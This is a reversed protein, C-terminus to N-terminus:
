LQRVLISKYAQLDGREGAVKLLLSGVQPASRTCPHSAEPYTAQTESGRHTCYHSPRARQRYLEHRRRSPDSSHGTIAMLVGAEAGSSDCRSDNLYVPRTEGVKKRRCFLGCLSTGPAVCSFRLPYYFERAKRLGLPTWPTLASGNPAPRGRTASLSRRDLTSRKWSVGHLFVCSQPQTIQGAPLCILSFYNMLWEGTM